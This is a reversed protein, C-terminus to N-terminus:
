EKTREGNGDRKTRRQHSTLDGLQRIIWTRNAAVGDILPEVLMDADAVVVAHGRGVNCRAVLGGYSLRCSAVASPEHPREITLRGPSRVTVAQGEATVQLERASLAEPADLGLGWRTLLPTLLSTVPPNRPDGIPHALEGSYLGDAFIIATGGSRVHEDIAVLGEPPLARPHAIWWTPASSGAPPPLTDVEAIDFSRRAEALLPGDEFGALPASADPAVALPVGTLLLVRPKAPSEAASPPPSARGAGDRAVVAWGIGLAALAAMVAPLLWARRRAGIM